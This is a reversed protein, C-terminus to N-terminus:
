QIGGESISAYKVYDKANFAEMEKPTMWGRYYGTILSGRMVEGTPSAYKMMRGVLASGSTQHAARDRLVACLM